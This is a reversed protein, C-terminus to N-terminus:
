VAMAVNEVRANLEMISAYLTNLNWFLVLSKKKGM